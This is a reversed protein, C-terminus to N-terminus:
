NASEARAPANRQVNGEPQQLASKSLTLRFVTLGPRSEELNVEGGHEQAVKFALALGLGTGSVKGVSVFPQYLRQRVMLPVGAGNDTITLTVQDRNESAQVMVEPDSASQRAAQSANLLLNYFAREIRRADLWMETVPSASVVFRVNQAEPHAKVMNLARELIYGVSEYSPQLIEGTRSFLLLSDILDTMGRVGLRVENLLEHREEPKTSDDGLFEANAYVASLYHRLDHSISSAMRGITALRESAVLEEQTAKLRTRMRDFADALERLERAGSRQIHYEFNGAGLARASAVLRDLPGTISTSVYIALLAGLFFLVLGVLLLTVNLNTLYTSAKDFSELVVMQLRPGGDHGQPLSAHLFHEGALWVDNGSAEQSLLRSSTAPSAALSENALTSAVLAGDAYFIVQASAAQSIEEALRRDVQYGIMVHGLLVGGAQAGFYLPQSAVEYVRQSQTRYYWIRGPAGFIPAPNLEKLDQPLGSEFLAIPRGSPSALVFLDAGSLNNFEAAGDRITNDDPATMLSKLVPLAALLAVERQLMQERQSQINRFTSVSRELDANLERRIEQRLVSRLVFVSLALMGGLTSLLLLLLMTRMRIPM